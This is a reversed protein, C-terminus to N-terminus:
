KKGEREQSKSARWAAAEICCWSVEIRSRFVPYHSPPMLCNILNSKIDLPWHTATLSHFFTLILLKRMINKGSMFPLLELNKLQPKKPLKCSKEKNDFALLYSFHFLFTYYNTEFNGTDMIDYSMRFKAWYWNWVRCIFNWMETQYMKNPFLCM